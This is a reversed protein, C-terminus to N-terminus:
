GMGEGPAMAVLSRGCTTVKRVGASFDRHPSATLAPNVVVRKGNAVQAPASDVRETICDCVTVVILFRDSYKDHRAVYREPLLVFLAFALEVCHHALDASIPFARWALVRQEITKQASRHDARVSARRPVVQEVVADVIGGGRRFGCRSRRWRSGASAAAPRSASNGLVPILGSMTSRM